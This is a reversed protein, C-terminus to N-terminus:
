SGDVSTVVADWLPFHVGAASSSSCVAKWIIYQVFLKTTLALRIYNSSNLTVSIIRCLSEVYIM